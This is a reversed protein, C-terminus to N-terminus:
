VAQCVPGCSGPTTTYVGLRTPTGPVSGGEPSSGTSLPPPRPLEFTPAVGSPGARGVIASPPTPANRCGSPARSGRPLPGACRGGSYYGGSYYGGGGSGGGSLGGM